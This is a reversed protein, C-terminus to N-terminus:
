AAIRTGQTTITTCASATTQSYTVTSLSYRCLQRGHASRADHAFSNRSLAVPHSQSTRTMLRVLKGGIIPCTEGRYGADLESFIIGFLHVVVHMTDPKPKPNWFPKRTATHPVKIPDIVVNM